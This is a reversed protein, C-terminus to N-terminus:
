AWRFQGDYTVMVKNGRVAIRLDKGFINFTFTDIAGDVGTFGAVLTPGDTILVECRGFTVVSHIVRAGCVIQQYPSVARGLAPLQKVNPSVLAALVSGLFARRNM